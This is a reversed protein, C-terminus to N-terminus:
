CLCDKCRKFIKCHYSKTFSYAGRNSGLWASYVYVLSSSTKAQWNVTKSIKGLLKSYQSTSQKLFQKLYLM